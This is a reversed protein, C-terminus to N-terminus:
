EGSDLPFTSKGSCDSPFSWWHLTLSVALQHFLAILVLSFAFTIHHGSALDYFVISSNTNCFPGNPSNKPHLSPECHVARQTISGALMLFFLIEFGLSLRFLLQTPRAIRTISLLISM